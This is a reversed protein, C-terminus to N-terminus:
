TPNKNERWARRERMREEAEEAGLRMNIICFCMAYIVAHMAYMAHCLMAYCLMVNSNETTTPNEPHVNSICPHTIHVRGIKMKRPGGNSPGHPKSKKHQIMGTWAMEKQVGSPGGRGM